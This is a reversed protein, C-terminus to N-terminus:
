TKIAALTLSTDLITDLNVTEFKRWKNRREINIDKIIGSTINTCCVEQYMLSM